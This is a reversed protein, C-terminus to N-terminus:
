PALHRFDSDEGSYFPYLCFHALTAGACCAAWPAELFAFAFSALFEAGFGAVAVVARERGDFTAPMAWTLRPIKVLGGYLDGWAFAFKLKEGLARAALWACWDSIFCPSRAWNSVTM